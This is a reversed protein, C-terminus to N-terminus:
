IKLNDYCRTKVSVLLYYCFFIGCHKYINYIYKQLDNNGTAMVSKEIVIPSECFCIQFILHVIHFILAGEDNFVYCYSNQSFRM